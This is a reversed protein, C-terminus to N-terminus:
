RSYKRKNKIKVAVILLVSLLVFISCAMAPSFPCPKDEYVRPLLETPKGKMLKRINGLSDVIMMHPMTREMMEPMILDEPKIQNEDAGLLVMHMWIRIWPSRRGVEDVWESLSGQTEKPLEAVKLMNPSVSSNIAYLAMSLCNVSTCDFTWISGEMSEADLKKWLNQKESPTLNLEYARVGRGEQRYSDLFKGSPVPIFGAKAKRMFIDLCSSKGMDMEFSFCYDLGKEACVMRIAAHGYVSYYAKGADVILLYAHIFDPNSAEQNIVTVKSSDPKQEAQVKVFCFCLCIKVLCLLRCKMANNRLM